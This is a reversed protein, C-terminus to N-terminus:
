KTERKTKYDYDDRFSIKGSLDALDMRTRNQVFEKLAQAVIDRKTKFDPVSFAQKMTEDDIEINIRM